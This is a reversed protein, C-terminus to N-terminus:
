YLEPGGKRKFGLRVKKKTNATEVARARQEQTATVSERADVAHPRVDGPEGGLDRVNMHLGAKATKIKTKERGSTNTNSTELKPPAPSCSDVRLKMKKGMHNINQCIYVM